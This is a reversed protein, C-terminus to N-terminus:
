VLKFSWQAKASPWPEARPSSSRTSCRRFRGTGISETIGPEIARSTPRVRGADDCWKSVFWIPWNATKSCCSAIRPGPRYRCREYDNWPKAIFPRDGVENVARLLANLDAYGSLILRAADPQVAKAAKHFEIGDM